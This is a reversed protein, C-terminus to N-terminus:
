LKLIGNSYICQLNEIFYVCYNIKYKYWNHNNCRKFKLTLMILEKNENKNYNNTMRDVKWTLNYSFNQLFNIGLIISVM